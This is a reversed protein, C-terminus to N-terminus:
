TRFDRRRFAMAAMSFLAADVLALCAYDGAIKKWPIPNEFVHMWAAIHTSLFWPRMGAFYPVNSFLFDLFLIAIPAIVAAAPKIGLCSFMFGLSTVTVLGFALLVLAVCFRWAGAGPGHWAVMHESASWFFLGGVGRSGIGMSLATLSLFGVLLMTYGVCSIYKLAVIRLRTVPRCLVMQLTGEEVENSLVDGSVLALFLACPLFGTWMVIETALTLGSFYRNFDLGHEQLLRRFDAQSEGRNVLVLMVCQMAFLGAFGLYSRRRAFLKRLELGLQFLLLSM